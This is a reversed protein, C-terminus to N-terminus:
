SASTDANRRRLKEVLTTRGMGLLRAAEKKNGGSQALAKAIYAEELERLLVPLNVPLAQVGVGSATELVSAVAQVAEPLLPIMSHVGSVEDGSSPTAAANVIEAIAAAVSQGGDGLSARTHTVGNTPLAPLDDAASFPPHSSASAAPTMPLVSVPPTAVVPPPPPPVAPLEVQTIVDAFPGVVSPEPDGFPFPLDSLRIVNGEAIVSVREVLNELERVNGPWDYTALRALVEPDIPRTEGRTRWFHIFLAIVDGKRSRLPPLHMPCVNLRYYLDQRFRGARVEQLLDRNTAAVLRFDATISESSGVPEYTKQQLLRLLKVQLALPLEGIEDLFLTGGEALAVRGRRPTNAGTFAGKVYGFLESELLAEPIAGCNVPVFQRKARPSHAHILRAFVEKGTGTEGTFLVSAQSAAVRICTKRVDVLPSELCCVLGDPFVHAVPLGGEARSPAHGVSIAGATGTVDMDSADPYLRLGQTLIM